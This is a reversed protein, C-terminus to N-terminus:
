ARAVWTMPDGWGLEDHGHHALALTVLTRRHAVRPGRGVLRM